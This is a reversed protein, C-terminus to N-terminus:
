STGNIEAHAMVHPCGNDGSATELDDCRAREQHLLGTGFHVAEEDGALVIQRERRKCFETPDHVEDLGIWFSRFFDPAGAVCKIARPVTVFLEDSIEVM